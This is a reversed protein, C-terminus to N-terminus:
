KERFRRLCLCACDHCPHLYSVDVLLQATTRPTVLMFKHKACCVAFEFLSVVVYWIFNRAFVQNETRVM